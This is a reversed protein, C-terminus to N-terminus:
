PIASKYKINPEFCDAIIVHNIETSALIDRAEHTSESKRDHQSMSDRILINARRGFDGIGCLRKRFAFKFISSTLEEM